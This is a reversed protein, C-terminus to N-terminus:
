DELPVCTTCDVAAMDPHRYCVNLTEYGREHAFDYPDVGAPVSIRNGDRDFVGLPNGAMGSADQHRISPNM